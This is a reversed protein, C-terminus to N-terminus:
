GREGALMGEAFCDAHHFDPAGPPHALAWYSKGGAKDEILASLGFRLGDRPLGELGSLDLVARLSYSEGTRQAEIRPPAAEMAPRMGARYGDFRYAAWHLSPSFNFEYYGPAAAVFAEFCTHRWLDDARGPATVQPIRLENMNGTAIYILAFRGGGQPALEVTVGSVARSQSDPHPKLAYRM